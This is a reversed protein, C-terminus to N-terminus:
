IDDITTLEYSELINPHQPALHFYLKFVDKYGGPFKIKHMLWMCFKWTQNFLWSKDQLGWNRVLGLLEGETVIMKRSPLTFITKIKTWLSGKTKFGQVIRGDITPRVKFKSSFSEVIILCFLPMLLKCVINDNLYGIYIYDRPHMIKKLNFEGTLNDYTGFKIDKWFEKHYDLGKRASFACLSTYQDHSIYKDPGETINPINNFRHSKHNRMKEIYNIINKDMESTDKGNKERLIVNEVSFLICNESVIDGEHANLLDYENVVPM